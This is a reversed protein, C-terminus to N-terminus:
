AAPPAALAELKRLDWYDHWRVLTGSDDFRIFGAIPIALFEEGDKDIMHDIRENWVTTGVTALELWEVRIGEVGFGQNFGAMLELAPEAGTVVPIDPHCLYEASDGLLDRYSQQLAAFSEPWKATEAEVISQVNTSASM